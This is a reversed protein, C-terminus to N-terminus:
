ALALFGNYLKGKGCRPCRCRLGASLSSPPAPASHQRCISALHAPLSTLSLTLPSLPSLTSTLQSVADWTPSAVVEILLM